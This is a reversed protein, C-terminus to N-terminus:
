REKFLLSKAKLLTRAPGNRSADVRPPGPSHRATTWLGVAVEHASGLPPAAVGTQAREWVSDGTRFNFFYTGVEPDDIQRWGEGLEGGGDEDPCLDFDDPAFGGTAAGPAALNIYRRPAGGGGGGTADRLAAAVQAQEATSTALELAAEYWSTTGPPLLGAPIPEPSTSTAARPQAEERERRVARGRARAQLALM